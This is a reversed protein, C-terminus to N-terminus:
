SELTGSGRSVDHFVSVCGYSPAHINERLLSHSVCVQVTGHTFFDCKTAKFIKSKFIGIWEKKIKMGIFVCVYVRMSLCGFCVYGRRQHTLCRRQCLVLLRGRIAKEPRPLASRPGKERWVSELELFRVGPMETM